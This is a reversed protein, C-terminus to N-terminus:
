TISHLSCQSARDSQQGQDGESIIPTGGSVIVPFAPPPLPWSIVIAEAKM